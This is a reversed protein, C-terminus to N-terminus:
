ASTERRPRFRGTSVGRTGSRSRGPAHFSRGDGPCAFQCHQGLFLTGSRGVAHRPKIASAITRPSVHRIIHTYLGEFYTPDLSRLRWFEGSGIYFVRGSGYFQTALFIPRNDGQAARPDSFHALVTAAPKAGRLPQHSYVGKFESWTQQSATATDGLWLYEAELGERTFDLPWPEDATETEVDWVAIRKSFEVPYLDRIKELNADQIWGGVPEGTYVPGAIVVLGGGQEAVWTELLEVQSGSLAKWDPDFAVVCDYSFMEERTAPFNDLIREAEQSMGAQATQLCVDSLMSSDRYLLTRLFRYERTPGGAFLLVRDKRDVVEVETELFDDTDDRDDATPRVRLCLTRLGAETPTVEFKVPVSEGDAGLIIKRTGIPTGTGPVAGPPM